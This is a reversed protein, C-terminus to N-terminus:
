AVGMAKLEGAVQGAEKFLVADWGFERAAQVNAPSDDLFVPKGGALNFKQHALEYFNREPKMRKVRASFLGGHFLAMFGHHKEIHEAYPLPMNSFFYQRLGRQRFAHLLDVSEPLPQLEEPVARV